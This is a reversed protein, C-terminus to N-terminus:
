STNVEVQHFVQIKLKSSDLSSTDWSQASEDLHDFYDFTEDLEKATFERNCMMEVFQLM